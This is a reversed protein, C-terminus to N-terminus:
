SVKVATGSCFKLVSPDTRLDNKRIERTLTLADANKVRSLATYLQGAEFCHPNLIVKDLTLGQAKHITLAYCPRVPLQKIISDSNDQAYMKTPRVRLVKGNVDVFICEKCIKRVVGRTGNKYRDSNKVFIVPMGEYLPIQKEVPFVSNEDGDITTYEWVMYSQDHVHKQIMQSNIQNVESRFSSLYLEGSELRRELVDGDLGVAVHKNFYGIGSVDGIALRDLAQCYEIDDQRWVYHLEIMNQWIGEQWGWPHSFAFTSGYVKAYQQMVSREKDKVIPAIQHYDGCVIIQIKRRYVSEAKRKMALIEGFLDARVMSIEDIVLVDVDLFDRVIWTYMNEATYLSKVGIHLGHNITEGGLNEAAVGSPAVVKVNKGKMKFLEIAKCLTYSKGTGAAGTLFVNKGSLINALAEWQEEVGEREERGGRSEHLTAGDESLSLIQAPEQVAIKEEVRGYRKKQDFDIDELQMNREASLGLRKITRKITDPSTHQYKGNLTESIKRVSMGNLWLAAIEKDRDAADKQNLRYEERKAADGTFMGAAVAPLFDEELTDANFIYTGDAHMDWEPREEHLDVRLLQNEFEDEDLPESFHNNLARAMKYAIDRTYLIRSHCYFAFLFKKRGMGDRMEIMEPIQMMKPLRFKAALRFKWPAYLIVNDMATNRAHKIAQGANEAKAPKENSSKKSKINDAYDKLKKSIPEDTSIGLLRYLTEPAYKCDPNCEIITAYRGAKRNITGPMRLIRAHDTIRSDIEIIEPDFMEQIKKTFHRFAGDHKHVEPNLNTVIKRKGRLEQVTPNPILKDYRYIWTLGRGSSIIMTPRPLVQRLKAIVVAIVKDALEQDYPVLEHLVDIDLHMENIGLCHHDSRTRMSNEAMEGDMPNAAVYSDNTDAWILSDSDTGSGLEFCIDNSFPNKKKKKGNEDIYFGDEPNKWFKKRPLFIFGKNGSHLTDLFLMRAAKHDIQSVETKLDAPTLNQNDRLFCYAKDILLNLAAEAM